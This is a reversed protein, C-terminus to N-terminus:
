PIILKQGPRIPKQKSIGNARTLDAVSVKYRAAIVSLSDGPKVVYTRQPKAEPESKAPPTSPKGANAVPAKPAPTAQAPASKSAPAPTSTAKPPTTSPAPTTKSPTTAPASAPKSGAKPAAAPPNTPGATTPTATDTAKPKPPIQLVQGPRIAKKTTLGNAKAVADASVGYKKGIAILTEGKTVTHTVVKPIKSPSTTILLRQGVTIRKDMAIGNQKALQEPTTGYRSAIRTLNDGSQVIYTKTIVPPGIDRIWGHPYLEVISRRTDLLYKAVAQRVDSPTLSWFTSPGNGFPADFLAPDGFVAEYRGLARSRERVQENLRTQRASLALKARELEAVGPGSLKMALLQRELAKQMADVTSRRHLAVEVRFISADHLSHHSCEVDLALAENELLDARLRGTARNCLVYAALDLARSERTNAAPTRWGYYVLPATLSREEVVSLRESTQRSLVPLEANPAQPKRATRPLPAFYRQILERVTAEDFGGVVSLVANDPSYYDSVFAKAHTYEAALLDQRFGVTPHEYPWHRQFVLEHLRALGRRKPDRSWSLRYEDLALAKQREFSDKNLALQGMRDAELWFLLALESPVAESCYSALEETTASDSDAGRQTLLRAHDNPGVNRSGQTMLREVLAAIGSQGEPELGSGALYTVCVAATSREPRPELVVRLGNPLTFRQLDSPNAQPQAYANTTSAIACLWCATFWFSFWVRM